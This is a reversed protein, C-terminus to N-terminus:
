DTPAEGGYWLGIILAAATTSIIQRWDARDLTTGQALDHPKPSLSVEAEGTSPAWSVLTGLALAFAAAAVLGKKNYSM